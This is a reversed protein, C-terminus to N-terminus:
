SWVGAVVTFRQRKCRPPVGEKDRELRALAPKLKRRAGLVVGETEVVQDVEVHHRPVGFARRVLQALEDQRAGVHEMGDGGITVGREAASAWSGARDAM